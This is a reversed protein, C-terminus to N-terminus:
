GGSMFQRWAIANKITQHRWRLDNVIEQLTEIVVKIYEVKAQAEQIDKDSKYFYEM